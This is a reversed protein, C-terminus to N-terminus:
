RSAGRYEQLWRRAIGEARLYKQREKLDKAPCLQRDRCLKERARRALGDRSVAPHQTVIERFLADAWAPVRHKEARRTSARRANARQKERLLEGDEWEGAICALRESDGRADAAVAERM